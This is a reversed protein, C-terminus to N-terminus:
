DFCEIIGALYFNAYLYKSDFNGKEMRGMEHVFRCKCQIIIEVSAGHAITATMNWVATPGYRLRSLRM